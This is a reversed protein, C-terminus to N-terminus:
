VKKKGFPGLLKKYKLTKWEDGPKVRKIIAMASQTKQPPWRCLSNEEDVWISPIVSSWNEVIVVHYM